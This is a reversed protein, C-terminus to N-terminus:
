LLGASSGFQLTLRESLSLPAHPAEWRKKLLPLIRNKWEQESLDPETLWYLALEELGKLSLFQADTLFRELQPTDRGWEGKKGLEDLWSRNQKLFAEVLQPDESPQTWALAQM